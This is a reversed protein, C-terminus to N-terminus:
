TVCALGYFGVRDIICMFLFTELFFGLCFFSNIITAPCQTSTTRLVKCINSRKVDVVVTMIIVLRRLLGSGFLM